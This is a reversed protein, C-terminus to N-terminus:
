IAWSRWGCNILVEDKPHEQPLVKAFGHKCLVHFSAKWLLQFVPKLTVKSAERHFAFTKHDNGRCLALSILLCDWLLECSHMSVCISWYHKLHVSRFRLLGLSLRPHLCPWAGKIDTGQCLALNSAPAGQHRVAQDTAQEMHLLQRLSCVTFSIDLPHGETLSFELGCVLPGISNAWM